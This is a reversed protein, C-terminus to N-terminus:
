ESRRSRWTCAAFRASTRLAGRLRSFATVPDDFFMVGFRSVAVDHPAGEIRDQQVDCVQFTANAIGASAARERACALMPDSLDVAHVRGSPGVRCALELTTDGCGAGVDLARQGTEVRAADMARIGFPRLMLDTEAQMQVWRAGGMGKWLKVQ